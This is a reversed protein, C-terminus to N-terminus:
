CARMRFAAAAERPESSVLCADGPSVTFKVGENGDEGVTLPDTVTVEQALLPM